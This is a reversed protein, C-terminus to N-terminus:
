GISLCKLKGIWYNHPDIIKSIPSKWMVESNLRQGGKDASLSESKSSNIYNISQHWPVTISIVFM